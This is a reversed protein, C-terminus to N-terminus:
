GLKRILLTFLYCKSKMLITTILQESQSGSECNIEKQQLMYDIFSYNENLSEISHNKKRKEKICYLTEYQVNENPILM